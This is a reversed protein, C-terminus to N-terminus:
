KKTSMTLQKNVNKMQKNVNEATQKCKKLQKNVNKKLQKNVIKEATQKCKLCKFKRALVQNKQFKKDSHRSSDWITFNQFM